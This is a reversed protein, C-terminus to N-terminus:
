REGLHSTGEGLYKGFVKKRQRGMDLASQEGDDGADSPKVAIFQLNSNKLLKSSEYLFLLLTHQAGFSM